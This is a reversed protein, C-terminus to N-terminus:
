RPDARAKRAFRPRRSLAEGTAPQRRRRLTERVVLAAVLVTVTTVPRAAPLVADFLAVM